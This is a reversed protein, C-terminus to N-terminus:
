KHWNMEDDNITGYDKADVVMRISLKIAQCRWNEGLGTMKSRCYM